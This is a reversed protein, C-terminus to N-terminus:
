EAKPKKLGQWALTAIVYCVFGFLLVMKFGFIMSLIIALASGVVSAFGNVAWGWAVYERPFDSENAIEKLGIPMFMGLCLGLPTLMAMTIFIRLALHQDLLANTVAPLGFLNFITLVSIAGLLKPIAGRGHTVRQSLLAGLGTSLLLTMLTVTLSYTPYGLFLNLLQILTVEFFIFGLGVGSFFVLSRGKNPLKKWTKRIAFFPLLLFISAILTSVLLLLILIREGIANERNDSSLSHAYNGLVKGFRAFHYFFPSNDSTPTVNYPYSSYFNPVQAKPTEMFTAIPNAPNAAPVGKAYIVVTKPVRKCAKIFNQVQAATFPSRSTLITTQPVNSPFNNWSASVMIHRQPDTVGLQRLAERDTTVMRLTRLYFETDVEGFQQAFVGSQTLHELNTVVANSTFLYSESLVYASSLAGNTAAYSDPAPYWILNFNQKSRAIFSRGDGTTYNVRKNTTLHGNFAAFKGRMLKATVPNLEVANVQHSGYALSVLTEHGGAAGVITVKGLPTGANLTTPISLAQSGFDFNKLSSQKGDWKLMVAGQLGDHYLALKDPLGLFHNVDVRLIPGWDSYLSVNPTKGNILATLGTKSNDLQLRPLLGPASALLITAALVVAAIIKTPKGLRVSVMLGGAAMVAAALMIVAPAGMLSILYVVVASAIGAGLLDAFYLGSIREPERGFLTAIIVGPAVFSLMVVISILVILLIGINSGKSGYVWISLTNFHVVAVVSYFAVTAAAGFLFSWFLVLDTSLSRLRSSIAVLVAGVGLGLLALGIILYVYYYFFKFSIIRTYSIEVLLVSFSALLIEIHRSGLWSGTFSSSEVKSKM